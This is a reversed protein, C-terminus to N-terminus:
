NNKISLKARIKMTVDEGKLPNVYPLVDGDTNMLFDYGGETGVASIAMRIKDKVPAYINKEAEAIQKECDKRFAIGAEMLQQLERQRKLLINQPFDKQGALFDAYKRNFEEETRKIEAAYKGKLIELSQRAAMMDPLSDTVAKYSFYGFHSQAAMQLPLVLMFLLLLKKYMKM